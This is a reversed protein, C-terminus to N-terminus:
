LIRCPKRGHKAFLWEGGGAKEANYKKQIESPNKSWGVMLDPVITYLIMQASTGSPAIQTLTEPLVVERGASDTVTRTGDENQVIWDSEGTQQQETSSPTESTQNQPQCAVLGCAMVAALFLAIWKKQM